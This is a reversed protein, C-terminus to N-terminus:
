SSILGEEMAVFGTSDRSAGGVRCRGEDRMPMCLPRAGLDLPFALASSLGALGRGGGSCGMSWISPPTLLLCLQNQHRIRDTGLLMGNLSRTEVRGVWEGKQFCGRNSAPASSPILFLFPFLANCFISVLCCQDAGAMECYNNLSGISPDSEKPKHTPEMCVLQTVKPVNRLRESGQTNRLLPYLLAYRKVEPDPLYDTNM